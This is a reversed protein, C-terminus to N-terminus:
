CLPKAGCRQGTEDVTDGEAECGVRSVRGPWKERRWPLCIRGEGELHGLGGAEERREGTQGEKMSCSLKLRLAKM